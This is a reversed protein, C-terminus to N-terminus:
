KEWHISYLIRTLSDKAYLYDSKYEKKVPETPPAEVKLPDVPSGNKYVRFDLHPGTSLGTSGVYGIVQGQQVLTGPFIGKGFGSLHMYQTTYVGNHKVKVYNGSGGQYGKEVVMGDGISVVPTGKPATYDVGFHPRRIKLIPHFRSGSFRSSIRSFQLPAKLFARRINDGLDDFYDWGKDQFYRFAYFSKGMHEFEAALIPGIGVSASDVFQEEYLVRFRDGRQIGFFDISWAYVDSMQLALLPSLHNETMTNWLNSRIVGSATKQLVRVQKKGLSVSMSDNLDFVVYDTSNSEYVLYRALRSTDPKQFLFYTQGSKIKKLDFIGASVKVLQDVRTMSIGFGTLIEGLNQDPRVTGETIHFSDVPIGFRLAPVPISAMQVKEKKRSTNRVWLIGALLVLGLLVITAIEKVYKKRM